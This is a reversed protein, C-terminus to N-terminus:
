VSPVWVAFPSFNSVCFNVAALRVNGNPVRNRSVFTAVPRDTVTRTLSRPGNTGPRTTSTEYEAASVRPITPGPTAFTLISTRWYRRRLTPKSRTVPPEDPSPQQLPALDQFLSLDM